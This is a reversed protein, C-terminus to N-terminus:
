DNVELSDLLGQYSYIWLIEVNAWLPICPPTYFILHGNTDSVVVGGLAEIKEKLYNRM